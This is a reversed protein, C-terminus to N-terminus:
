LVFNYIIHGTVSVPVGGLITPSFKAQRAAVEADRRLLPHGSEAKASTVKGQENITVFVKVQGTARVQRAPAPYNPKPLHLARGNLITSIRLTKPTSEEKKVPKPKEVEVAQVDKKDTGSPLGSDEQGGAKVSGKYTDAVPNVGDKNENGLVTKVGERIPPVDVPKSSIELPVEMPTTEIPKILKTRVDANPVTTEKKPPIKPKIEQKIEPKPEPKIDSPIIVLSADTAISEISFEKAYLSLGYSTLLLMTVCLFIVGLFSKTSSKPEILNEVIM